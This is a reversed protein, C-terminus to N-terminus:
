WTGKLSDGGEELIFSVRVAEINEDHILKLATEYARNRNTMPSVVVINFDCDPDKNAFRYQVEFM